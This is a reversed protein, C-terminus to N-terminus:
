FRARSRKTFKKADFNSTLPCRENSGGVENGQEVREKGLYLWM